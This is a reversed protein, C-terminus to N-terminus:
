YDGAVGSFNLKNVGSVTTKSRVALIAGAELFLAGGETYALGPVDSTNLLAVTKTSGNVGAGAPINVEGIEYNVSSKQIAVQVVYANSTDSNSVFVCDIRGGSSGATYLAKFSTGDANAISQVPTKVSSIFQPTAGM